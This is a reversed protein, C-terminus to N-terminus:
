LLSVRPGLRHEQVSFAVAMSLTAVAVQTVFVSVAKTFPVPRSCDSTWFLFSTGCLPLPRKRPKEKHADEKGQTSSETNTM